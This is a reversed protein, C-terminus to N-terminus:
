RPNHPPQRFFGVDVLGVVNPHLGLAVHRKVELDAAFVADAHFGMRCM